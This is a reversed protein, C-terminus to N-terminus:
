QVALVNAVVPILAYCVAVGAAIGIGCVYIAADFGSKVVGAIGSM